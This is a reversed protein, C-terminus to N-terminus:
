KLTKQDTEIKVIVLANAKFGKLLDEGVYVVREIGESSQIVLKRYEIDKDIQEKQIHEVSKVIGSFEIKAM